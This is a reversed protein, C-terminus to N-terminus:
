SAFCAPVLQCSAPEPAHRSAPTAHLSCGVDGPQIHLVQLTSYCIKDTHDSASSTSTHLHVYHTSQTYYHLHQSTHGPPPIVQVTAPHQKQFHFHTCNPKYASGHLQHWALQEVAMALHGLLVHMYRSLM